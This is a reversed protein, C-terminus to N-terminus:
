KGHDYLSFDLDFGLIHIVRSCNHSKYGVMRYADGSGFRFVLLKTDETMEKNYKDNINCYLNSLCMTEFGGITYKSRTALEEWTSSSIANILKIYEKLANRDNACTDVLANYSYSKHNTIHGFEFLIDEKWQNCYPEAKSKHIDIKNKDSAKKIKSM